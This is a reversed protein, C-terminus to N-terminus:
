PGPLNAFLVLLISECDVFFRYVPIAASRIRDSRHTNKSSQFATKQARYSRRALHFSRFAVRFALSDDTHGSPGMIRGIVEFDPFVKRMLYLRVEYAAIRKRDM